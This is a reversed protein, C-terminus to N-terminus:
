IEVNLFRAAVFVKPVRLVLSSCLNNVMRINFSFSVNGMKLKELFHFYGVVPFM